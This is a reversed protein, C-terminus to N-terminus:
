KLYRDAYELFKDWDFDLIAHGGTRIHYAIYGKNMAVDVAPQKDCGIGPLGYLAYVPEAAKGSLFEGLPDAWSDDKGTALYVPRPAVLAIVSHQDFPLYQERMNFQKFNDCTWYPFHDNMAWLTEGIMRRSLAGGGCGSNVPFAMAFREDVAATWLAAKGMRSHGLIAVKSANITEDAQLYDLLRSAEWAWASLCGWQDPLPYTQGKAYYAPILGKKYVDPGDPAGETTNLVAVGYGRELIRQTAKFGKALKSGGFMMFAPVPKTAAKPTIIEAHFLPGDAKKDTLYISVIKRIYQPSKKNKDFRFNNNISDIHWQLPHKLVPAKGYMYTTVLNLLEPRRHNEWEEVTTVKEGDECLLPDPLTYTPVKSEDFNRTWEMKLDQAQSITPLFLLSLIAISINKTKM